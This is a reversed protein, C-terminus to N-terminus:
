ATSDLPQITFCDDQNWVTCDHIHIDRGAVDFGDTNFADLNWIGHSDDKTIRNDIACHSIELGAVDFATFTWYPSQLFHWNEVKVNTANVLSFLRPRDEGHILDPHHPSTALNRPPSTPLPSGGTLHLFPRHSNPTSFVLRSRGRNLECQIYGWWSEGSGYLTGTGSSTLTLDTANAIFISEQVCTGNKKPQLPNGGASCDETPWGKRGPLFKLTGELQLTVGHLETARIGGAVYFTKNSVVLADGSGLKSLASNLLATNKSATAVSSDGAVGGMKELDYTTAASGRGAAGIAAACSLAALATFLKM